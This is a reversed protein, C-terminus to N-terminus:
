IEDFGYGKIICNVSLEGKVSTSKIEMKKMSILLSGNTINKLFRVIEIFSGRISVSVPIDYFHKRKRNQLPTFELFDIGANGGHFAIESILNQVENKRVFYKRAKSLDRNLLVLEKKYKNLKASKRKAINISKSINTLKDKVNTFEIYKPFIFIRLFSIIIILFTAIYIVTLQKKEM